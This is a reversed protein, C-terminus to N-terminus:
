RSSVEPLRLWTTLTIQLPRTSDTDLQSDGAQVRLPTLRVGNETILPSELQLSIEYRSDIGWNTLWREWDTAETIESVPLTQVSEVVNRAVQQLCAERQLRLQRSQITLLGPIVSSMLAGLLILSVLVEMVSFGRRTGARNRPWISGTSPGPWQRSTLVAQVFM